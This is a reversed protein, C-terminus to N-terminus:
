GQLCSYPVFIQGDGVATKDGSTSVLCVVFLSQLSPKCPSFFGEVQMFFPMNPCLSPLPEFGSFESLLEAFQDELVCLSEAESRDSLLTKGVRAAPQGRGDHRAAGMLGAARSAGLPLFM